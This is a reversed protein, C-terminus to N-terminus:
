KKVPRPEANYENKPPMKKSIEDRLKRVDLSGNETMERMLRRHNKEHSTGKAKWALDVIQMAVKNSAKGEVAFYENAALADIDGAELATFIAKYKESRLSGKRWTKNNNLYEVDAKETANDPTATSSAVAAPTGDILVESDTALSDPNVAEADPLTDEDSRSCSGALKIGGWILALVAVVGIVGRIIMSKKSTTDEAPKGDNGDSGGTAVNDFVPARHKHRNGWIDAPMRDAPRLPQEADAIEAAPQPPAAPTQESNDFLGTDVTVATAAPAAVAPAPAASVVQKLDINYTEPSSGMLRHARFGHFRGARLQMYEQTNKEMFLAEEIIRGEGFDFRLLIDKSEPELVIALPDSVPLTDVTFFETYTGFNTSSVTIKAKGDVFDTNSIEFGDATRNATRGNVLVTYTDIASGSPTAVTYPVRRRFIIGAHLANNVILAPGNIRVYRNTTGVEFMVSVPEFGDCSYTVTLHDSFNVAPASAQVDPPCVVMLAKDVPTTIQTLESDPAKMVSSPVIVVARFEAYDKQRPFGLINGLEGPSSFTRSCLGGTQPSGWPDYSSRMPKDSFGASAILREVKEADLDEGAMIANKLSSLLTVLHRGSVLVDRECLLTVTLMASPMESDIAFLSFARRDAVNWMMYGETLGVFHRVIRTLSPLEVAPAGDTLNFTAPRGDETVSVAIDLYSFKRSM